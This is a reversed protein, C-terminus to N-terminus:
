LGRFERRRCQHRSEALFNPTGALVVDAVSPSGEQGSGREDHPKRPRGPTPALVYASAPRGGLTDADSARLAYPVSTLRMRPREGEGAFQLGAVRAEGSAFVERPIGDPQTAGFLLTFRGAKDVVVSQTEQWLPPGGTEEAYVALTVTEVPAAPLGTAPAFTGTVLVLRPVTMVAASPVSAPQAHLTTAACLCPWVVAMASTRLPHRRSM